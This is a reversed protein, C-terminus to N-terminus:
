RMAVERKQIRQCHDCLTAPFEPGDVERVLTFGCLAHPGDLFALHTRKGRRTMGYKM